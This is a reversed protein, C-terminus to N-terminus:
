VSRVHTTLHTVLTEFRQRIPPVYQSMADRYRSVIDSFDSRRCLAAATVGSLAVRDPRTIFPKGVSDNLLREGAELSTCHELFPFIATTFATQLEALADDIEEFSQVEYRGDRGTFYPLGLVVSLSNKAAEQPAPPFQNTIDEIADFRLGVNVSFAFVPNYDALSFTCDQFGSSTERRFAYDRKKGKFGFPLLIKVLGDYIADEIQKKKM